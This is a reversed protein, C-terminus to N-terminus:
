LLKFSAIHIYKHIYSQSVLSHHDRQSLMALVCTNQPSVVIKENHIFTAQGNAVEPNNDPYTSCTCLDVNHQATNHHLLTWDGLWANHQKLDTSM